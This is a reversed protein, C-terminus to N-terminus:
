GSGNYFPISNVRELASVIMRGSKEGSSRKGAAGNPHELRGRPLPERTFIWSYWAFATSAEKPTGTGVPFIAEVAASATPIASSSPKGTTTLAYIWAPPRPLPPPTLTARELASHSDM